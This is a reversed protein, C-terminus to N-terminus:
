DHMNNGNDHFHPYQVINLERKFDEMDSLEKIAFDKIERSSDFDDADQTIRFYM